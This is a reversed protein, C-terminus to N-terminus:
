SLLFSIDVGSPSCCMHASTLAMADDVFRPNGSSQGKNAWPGLYVGPLESLRQLNGLSFVEDNQTDSEVPGGAIRAAARRRVVTKVTPRIRFGIAFDPKPRPLQEAGRIPIDAVDWM